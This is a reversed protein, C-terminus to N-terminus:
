CSGCLPPSGEADRKRSPLLWLAQARGVVRVGYLLTVFGVADKPLLAEFHSLPKM